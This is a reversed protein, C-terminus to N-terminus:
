AAEDRLVWRVLTELKASLVNAADVLEQKAGEYSAILSTPKFYVIKVGGAPEEVLWLEVPVCLGADLDHEIMTIAVFPNGLIFRKCNLNRTQGNITVTSTPPKYFPLWFGHNFEHFYMFGHPGLLSKIRADYGERDVLANWPTPSSTSNPQISSRLRAEATSFSISSRYVLREAQVVQKEVTLTM